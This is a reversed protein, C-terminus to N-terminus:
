QLSRDVTEHATVSRITSQSSTISAGSDSSLMSGADALGGEAQQALLKKRKRRRRRRAAAASSEGEEAVFMESDEEACWM